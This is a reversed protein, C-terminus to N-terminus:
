RIVKPLGGHRKAIGEFHAQLDVPKLEVVETIRKSNKRAREIAMVIIFLVLVAFFVGATYIGITLIDIGETEETEKSKVSDDYEEFANVQDKLDKYCQSSTDYKIVGLGNIYSPGQFGWMGILLNDSSFYFKEVNSLDIQGFDVMRATTTIVLGKM